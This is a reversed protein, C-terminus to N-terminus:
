LCNEVASRRLVQRKPNASALAKKKEITFEIDQIYKYHTELNRCLDSLKNFTEPMLTKLDKGGSGSGNLIPQPTRVGAVVDEGQANVLFEGFLTKEGTSPNRTFVVGTACDEGGTGSCWLRFM